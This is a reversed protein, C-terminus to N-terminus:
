TLAVGVDTGARWRVEASRWAGDPGIRLDFRSPVAPTDGFSLRAGHASVNRVMCELAGYGHNFRLTGGRLTRTRQEARRDEATDQRSNAMM